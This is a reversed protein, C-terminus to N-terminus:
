WHAAKGIADDLWNFYSDPDWASFMMRGPTSNSNRAARRARQDMLKQSTALNKEQPTKTGSITRSWATM